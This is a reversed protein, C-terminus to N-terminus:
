PPYHDVSKQAELILRRRRRDPIDNRMAVQGDVQEERRHYEAQALQAATNGRMQQADDRGGDHQVHNRYKLSM